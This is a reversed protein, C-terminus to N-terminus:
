VEPLTSLSQSASGCIPKNFSNKHFKSFSVFIRIEETPLTTILSIYRAIAITAPIDSLSHSIGNM